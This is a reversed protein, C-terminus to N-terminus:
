QHQYHGNMGSWWPQHIWGLFPWNIISPFPNRTLVDGFITSIEHRKIQCYKGYACNIYELVSCGFNDMIVYYQTAIRLIFPSKSLDQMHKSAGLCRPFLKNRLFNGKHHLVTKQRKTGLGLSERYHAIGICGVLFIYWPIVM